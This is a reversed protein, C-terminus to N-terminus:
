RDPTARLIEQVRSAGSAAAHGAGTASGTLGAGSPTRDGATARAGWNACCRDHTLARRPGRCWHWRQGHRRHGAWENLQFRWRGRDRCGRLEESFWGFRCRREILRGVRSRGRSARGPRQRWALPGTRGALGPRGTGLRGTGIAAAGSPPASAAKKLPASSEPAVGASGIAM